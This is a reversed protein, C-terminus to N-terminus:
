RGRRDRTVAGAGGPYRPGPRFIERPLPGTKGPRVEGSAILKAVHAKLIEEENEDLDTPEPTLEAHSKKGNRM